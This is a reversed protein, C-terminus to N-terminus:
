TTRGLVLSRLAVRLIEQAEETPISFGAANPHGGGGREEALKQARGETDRVQVALPVIMSVQSLAVIMCPKGEEQAIINGVESASGDPIFAVVFEGWDKLTARAVRRQTDLTRNHIAQGIAMAPGDLLRNQYFSLLGEMTEYGVADLLASLTRAKRFLGPQEDKQWRDGVDVVAVLHAWGIPAKMWSWLISAACEDAKHRYGCLREEPAPSPHHDIVVSLPDTWIEHDEPLNLDCVICPPKICVLEDYNLAAVEECIGEAKLMAGCLCGDMDGRHTYGREFTQESM